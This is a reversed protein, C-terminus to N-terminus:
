EVDKYTFVPKFVRSAIKWGVPTLVFEDHYEGIGAFGEVETAGHPATYVTVYSVGTAHLQDQPFIRITSMLHRFQPGRVAGQLRKGIAERGKFTDGLVTLTANEAFVNAFGTPDPRDRYYAYDLVLDTCAQVADHAYMPMSWGLLLLWLIKKM